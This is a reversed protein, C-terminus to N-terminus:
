EAAWGGVFWYVGKDVKETKYLKAAQKIDFATFKAAAKQAAAHAKARQKIAKQLEKFEATTPPAAGVSQLRNCIDRIANSLKTFAQDKTQWDTYLALAKAKHADTLQDAAVISCSLNNADWINAVSRVTTSGVGLPLSNQKGNYTPTKVAENRIDKFKVALAEGRKSTNKAVYEEAEARTEFLKEQIALGSTTALTGNYPDTGYEDTLDSIRQEYQRRLESATLKGEFLEYEFHSGM